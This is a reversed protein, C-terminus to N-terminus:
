FIQQSGHGPRRLLAGEFADISTSIHDITHSADVLLDHLLEGFMRVPHELASPNTSSTKQFRASVPLLHGHHVTVFARQRSFSMLERAQIDDAAQDFIPHVLCM